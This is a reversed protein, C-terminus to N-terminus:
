ISEKTTPHQCNSLFSKRVCVKFESKRTIYVCVFILIPIYKEAGYMSTSMPYVCHVIIVYRVLLFFPVPFARASLAALVWSYVTFIIPSQNLIYSIRGQWSNYHCTEIGTTHSYYATNTFLCHM